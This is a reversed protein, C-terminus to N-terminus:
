GLEYSLEYTTTGGHPSDFAGSGSIGTLGGRGSGDVISWPGAAKQGDFSGSTSVVFGGERGDLTGSVDLLGVYDATGDKRYCMLWTVRGSGSVDGALEATIDARTLKGEDYEAYPDEDWSTVNFEGKATTM